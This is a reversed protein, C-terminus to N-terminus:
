PNQDGPSWLERFKDRVYPNLRDAFDIPLKLAKVVEQVDALDKLRNPNTMGSALKMEILTTLPVYKRGDLEIAM